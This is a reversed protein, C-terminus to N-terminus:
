IENNNNRYFVVSLIIACLCLIISSIINIINRSEAFINSIITIVTSIWLVYLSIRVLNSKKM